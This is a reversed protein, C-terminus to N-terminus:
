RAERAHKLYAASLIFPTFFGAFYIGMGWWPGSVAVFVPLTGVALVRVVSGGVHGSLLTTGNLLREHARMMLLVNVIGCVAGVSLESALLVSKLALLTALPVILLLSRLCVDLKMRRPMFRNSSAVAGSTNPGNRPSVQGSTIIKVLVFSQRKRCRRGAM